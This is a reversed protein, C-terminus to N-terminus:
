LGKQRGIRYVECIMRQTKLAEEGNIDPKVGAELATYFSKIQKFHSVGWYGKSGNGYDFTEEPNIDATIERGDTFKILAKDGVIKAVGKECHLEIEVPADYSYYNMANFSTIVGNKYTIIGEAFDEVEINKIARRKLSADVNAVESSVFWRMLDLTHIAQNIIVGGGEMDWSGRWDSESYYEETRRWTLSCKGSIVKGLHGSELNEKILKSANNYRNQFIVGLIVANDKAAKVMEEAEKIEIAMPKETLVNIKAKAAHIAVPAHLYHPLCIHIVDLAEKDIMEKYDLYYKCNFEAAKEQARELKNDCVAVLEVNELVKISSAHMPFITGCGIIAVRFKKM